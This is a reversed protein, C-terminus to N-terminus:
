HYLCFFIDTTANKKFTFIKKIKPLGLNQKILHNVPLEYRVFKDEQIYLVPILEV